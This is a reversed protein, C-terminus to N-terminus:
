LRDAPGAFQEAPVANQELVMHAPEDGVGFRDVGVLAGALDVRQDDAPCDGAETSEYLPSEYLPSEQSPSDYSPRDRTPGRGPASCACHSGRPGWASRSASSPIPSACSPSGGPMM